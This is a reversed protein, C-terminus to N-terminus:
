LGPTSKPFFRPSTPFGPELVAILLGFAVRVSTSQIEARRGPGHVYTAIHARDLFSKGNGLCAAVARSTTIAPILPRSCYASFCPVLTRSLLYATYISFMLPGQIMPSHLSGAWAGM